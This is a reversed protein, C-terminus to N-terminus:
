EGRVERERGREKPDRKKAHRRKEKELASWSICIKLPMISSLPQWYM